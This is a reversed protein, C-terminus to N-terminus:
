KWISEKRMLEIYRTVDFDGGVKDKYIQMHNAMMVYFNQDEETLSIFFSLQKAPLQNIFQQKTM